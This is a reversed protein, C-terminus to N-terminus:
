AYAAGIKTVLIESGMLVISYLDRAGNAPNSASAGPWKVTNSTSTTWTFSTGGSNNYFYLYCIKNQSLKISLTQNATATLYIFDSADFDLTSTAGASTASVTSYDKQYNGKFSGTIIASDTKSIFSGNNVTINGLSHIKSGTITGYARVDGSSSVYFTTNLPGALSGSGYRVLIAVKKHETGTASGWKGNGISAESGSFMDIHLKAKLYSNFSATPTNPPTVGIGVSGDRTISSYSWPGPWFYFNNRVQKLASFYPTIGKSTYVNNSFQFSGTNSNLVLSGSTDSFLDWGEPGWNYSPVRNARNCNNSLILHSQGFNTVAKSDILLYNTPVSSSIKLMNYGGGDATWYLGGYSNNNSTSTLRTSDYYPITNTRNYSTKYLYSSTLSTTSSDASVAHLANSITGDVSMAKLAYSSTHARIAHSSTAANSSKLSYSSSFSSYKGSGNYSYSSTGNAKLNNWQLYSSTETLSNICFSSTLAYSSSFSSLEGSGNYSYSSTGLFSPAIVITNATITDVDIQNFTSTGLTTSVNGYLKGYHSGTFSGSYKGRIGSLVLLKSATIVCPTTNGIVLNDITGGDITNNFLVTNNATLLGNINLDYLNSTGLNSSIIGSVNGKLSGTIGYPIGSATISVVNLPTNILNLGNSYNIVNFDSVSSNGTFTISGGGASQNVEITKSYVGLFTPASTNYGISLYDSILLRKFINPIKDGIISYNDSEVSRFSGTYKNTQGTFNLDNLGTMVTATKQVFNTINSKKTSNSSINQIILYDNNGINEYTLTPLEIVTRGQNSLIAM